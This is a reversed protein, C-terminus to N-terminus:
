KLVQVWAVVDNELQWGSKMSWLLTEWAKQSFTFENWHTRFPPVSDTAVSFLGLRERAWCYIYILKKQKNTQKVFKILNWVSAPICWPLCRGAQKEGDCSNEGGGARLQLKTAAATPANYHLRLKLPVKSSFDSTQSFFLPNCLSVVSTKPYVHLTM